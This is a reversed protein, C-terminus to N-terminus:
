NYGPVRGYHRFLDGWDKINLEWYLKSRRSPRHFAVSISSYSVQVFMAQYSTSHWGSTLRPSQKINISALVLALKDPDEMWNNVIEKAYESMKTIDINNNEKFKLWDEDNKGISVTTADSARRSIFNIEEGYSMALGLYGKLTRNTEPNYIPREDSCLLVEKITNMSLKSTEVYTNYKNLIARSIEEYKPLPTTCYRKKHSFYTHCEDKVSCQSCNTKVNDLVRKREVSADQRVELNKSYATFDIDDLTVDRMNLFTSTGHNRYSKRNGYSLMVPSIYLHGAMKTVRSKYPLDTKGWSKLMHIDRPILRDSLTNRYDSVDHFKEVNIAEFVPNDAALTRRIVCTNDLTTAVTLCKNCDYIHKEPLACMAVVEKLDVIQPEAEVSTRIVVRTEELEHLELLTNAISSLAHSEVFMAPRDNFYDISVVFPPEYLKIVNKDNAVTLADEITYAPPEPVNPTYTTFMLSHTQYSANHEKSKEQDFCNFDSVLCNKESFATVIKTLTKEIDSGNGM